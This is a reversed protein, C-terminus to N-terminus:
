SSRFKDAALDLLGIHLLDIGQHKFFLLVMGCINKSACLYAEMSGNVAWRARDGWVFSSAVVVKGLVVAQIDEHPPVLGSSRIRAIM